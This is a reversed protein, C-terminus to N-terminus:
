CFTQRLTTPLSRIFMEGEPIKEFIIKAEFIEGLNDTLKQGSHANIRLFTYEGTLVKIVTGLEFLCFM